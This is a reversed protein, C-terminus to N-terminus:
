RGNANPKLRTVTQEKGAACYTAGQRCNQERLEDQQLVQHRRAFFRNALEGGQWEHVAANDATAEAGEVHERLSLHNM